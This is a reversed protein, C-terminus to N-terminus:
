PTANRCSGNATLLVRSEFFGEDFAILVLYRKM